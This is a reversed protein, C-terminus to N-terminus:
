GGRFAGVPKKPPPLSGINPSAEARVIRSTSLWRRSVRASHPRVTAVSRSIAYSMTTAPSSPPPPRTSRVRSRCLASWHSEGDIEGMALIPFARM